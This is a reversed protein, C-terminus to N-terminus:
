SNSTPEVAASGLQVLALNSLISLNIMQPTVTHDDINHDLRGFGVISQLM